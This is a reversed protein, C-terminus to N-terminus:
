PCEARRGQADLTDVRLSFDAPRDTSARARAFLRCSRASIRTSILLGDQMLEQVIPANLLERCFEVDPARVARLVVDGHLYVEAKPDLGMGLRQLGGPPNTM